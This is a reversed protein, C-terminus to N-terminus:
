GLAAAGVAAAAFYNESIADNFMFLLKTFSGALEVRLHLHEARM